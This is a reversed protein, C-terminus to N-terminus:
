AAFALVSAPRSTRRSIAACGPWNARPLWLSVWGSKVVRVGADIIKNTRNQADYEYRTSRGMADVIEALLPGRYVFRTENGLADRTSLLRGSGDYDFRVEAGVENIVRNTLGQFTYEYLRFSGDPNIVKGPRGCACGGDYEVRTVNGAADTLTTVRGQGDRTMATPLGASNVVELMHGAADYRLAISQGFADVVKTPKNLSNYTVTTTNGLADVTSVVNGRTDYARRTVYGRPDTVATEKDPNAPDGYEYRTVNGLPDHRELVNGRANYVLTTINGRADTVTGIFNSPDFNQETRNGLADITAVIRGNEDFETRQAQRGLPDIVENLFHRPVPHYTFRTTLNAQDTVAVLDGRVDYDYVIANGDPDVVRTIRNQGDRLLAISQGSSHSIQGAAFTVVNNNLDTITELKGSTTFRYKLNDTTTLVYHDPRWTFGFLFLVAEGGAARGLANDAGTTSLTEYVGPDARFRPSYTFGFFGGGTRLLEFTFGVRRGDPTTVFVRSIGDVFPTDDFVGGGQNPPTERIDGDFFGLKWGFGFDGSANANFTNYRRIVQIPIGLLPISLDTFALSFQGLKAEARVSVLVTKATVLGGKDRARIRILYTDNDRTTPDFKAVIANNVNVTGEGILEYDADDAAPNAEDVQDARAVHVQYLALNADTITAVVDTLFTVQSNAGPSHLTVQPAAGDAISPGTSITVNVETGPDVASGAVPAQAFIQGAVASPHSQLAATGLMLQAAFLASEAQLQTLGVLDPVVVASLGLSVVLAVSTGSLVSTGATPNQSIVQGAPVTAHNATTVAGVALGAGAIATGAAAETLGVVNPVLVPPPGLSVVLAVSTGPLVSTGATPNQNIVQGAPVTAHNATTVAGVVLSAGTIATGAAAETLGVVNPVLVPTPGLSILLAVSTGPLVSTGATPNQSIVQGAPVTAHNATTVAGVALGAGTIATGAAAETLGVVNPVLVPTPGLSIVLAVSTGPLVSTGATPNQSIVQGAPVTAHNATTVVGVVLSAGAIATGAAAETLGVVNPVLAPTPGLSVVLAVSTGPLVSTGATPNQSIVQGAPVTAHNATTVAGVVLSAGTIATGAAAETLGVVNPVLVPTPGLSIVLAVSTGPLVSTGATPNQSIVQGAPVTAHNATTVVGVVLSAG